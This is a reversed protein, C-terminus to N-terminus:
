FSYSGDEYTNDTSVPFGNHHTWRCHETEFQLLQPAKSKDIIVEPKSLMVCCDTQTRINWLVSLLTQPLKIGNNQDWVTSSLRLSCIKLADTQACDATRATNCVTSKRQSTVIYWKAFLEQCKSPDHCRSRRLTLCDQQPAQGVRFISVSNDKWISPYVPGLTHYWM